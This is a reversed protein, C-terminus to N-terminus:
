VLKHQDRMKKTPFKIIILKALPRLHVDILPTFIFRFNVSDKM